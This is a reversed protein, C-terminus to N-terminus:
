KASEQLQDVIKQTSIYAKPLKKVEGVADSVVGTELLKKYAKLDARLLTNFGKEIAWKVVKPHQEEELILTSVEKVEVGIRPNKNGTEEFYAVSTEGLMKKATDREDTYEKKRARYEDLKEKLGAEVLLAEAEAELEALEAVCQQLRTEYHALDVAQAELMNRM